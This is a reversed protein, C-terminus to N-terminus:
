QFAGAGGGTLQGDRVAVVGRELADPRIREYREFLLGIPIADRRLRAPEAMAAMTARPPDAARALQHDIQLWAGRTAIAAGPGGDFRALDVVPVVREALVGTSLTSTDLGRVASS